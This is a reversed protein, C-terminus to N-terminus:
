REGNVTSSASMRAAQDLQDRTADIPDVGNNTIEIFTGGVPAPTSPMRGGAAQGARPNGIQVPQMLPHNMLHRLRGGFTFGQRPLNERAVRDLRKRELSATSLAVAARGAAVAKTGKQLEVGVMDGVSNKLNRWYAETGFKMSPDILFSTTVFDVLEKLADLWGDTSKKLEEFLGNVSDLLGKMSELFENFNELQGTDELFDGLVSGGGRLFTIFDEIVLYLATFAGAALLAWGLIPSLIPWMFLFATRVLTFGKALAVLSGIFVTLSGIVSGAIAAGGLLVSFKGLAKSVKELPRLFQNFARRARDILHAVFEAGIEISRLWPELASNILSRSERSWRQTVNVVKTIEPLLRSGVVNRVGQFSKQLRLVEDNFKQTAQTIEPDLVLGLDKAEQMLERLAEPSMDFIPASLAGARGGIQAMLSRTEQFGGPTRARKFLKEHISLFAELNDTPAKDVAGFLLELADVATGAGKRADVLNDGMRRLFVQFRGVPVGAIDAVHSLQQFAQSQMSLQSATVAAADGVNATETVMRAFFSATNGIARRLGRLSMNIRALGKEAERTDSNVRITFQRIVSM